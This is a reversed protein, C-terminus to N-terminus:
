NRNAAMIGVVALGLLLLISMSSGGVGLMPNAIVGTSTANSPISYNVVSGDANYQQYTSYSTTVNAAVKGGIQEAGAIIGGWDIDGLGRVKQLNNFNNMSEDGQISPYNTGKYVVWNRKRYAPEHEWGVANGHSCDIAVRKGKTDVVTVYVHSFETPDDGSAAITTFYIDIPLRTALLLTAAFLSYSPCAAKLGPNDLALIPTILLQSDIPLSPITPLIHEDTLFTFQHSTSTHVWDLISDINGGAERVGERGLALFRPLSACGRAIGIMKAITGATSADKYLPIVPAVTLPISAGAIGLSRAIADDSTM